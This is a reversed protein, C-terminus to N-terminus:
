APPTLPVLMFATMRGAVALVPLLATIAAESGRLRCQWGALDRSRWDRFSCHDTRGDPVAGDRRGLVTIVSLLIAAITDCSHPGGWGM